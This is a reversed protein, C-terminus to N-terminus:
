GWTVGVGDLAGLVRKYKSIIVDYFLEVMAWGLGLTKAWKATNPM